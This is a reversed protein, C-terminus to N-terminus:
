TIVMVPFSVHAGGKSSCFDAVMKGKEEESPRRVYKGCGGYCFVVYVCVYLITALFIFRLLTWFSGLISVSQCGM